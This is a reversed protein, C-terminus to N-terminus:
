YFEREFCNSRYGNRYIRWIQVENKNRTYKDAVTWGYGNYNHVAYLSDIIKLGSDHYNGYGISNNGINTLDKEMWAVITDWAYSDILQSKINTDNEYMKESLIRATEQNVYNWVQNNRKSVPTYETTNKDEKVYEDGDKSAYFKANEPVGAEYRAVYFGGYKKVSDVDGGYDTWDNYDNYVYAKNKYKEANAVLGFKSNVSSDNNKKYSITGTGECPIWVFQNGEKSNNDDDDIVDSIILGTSPAGKIYHFENPIVARLSSDEEEQIIMRIKGTNLLEIDKKETANELTIKKIKVETQAEIAKQESNNPIIDSIDYTKGNYLIAGTKENTEIESSKMYKLVYVM